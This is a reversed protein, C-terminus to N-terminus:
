GPPSSRLDLLLEPRKSRGFVVDTVLPAPMMPGMTPQGALPSSGFTPLSSDTNTGSPTVPVQPVQGIPAPQRMPVTPVSHLAQGMVVSSRLPTKTTAPVPISQPIPHSATSFGLGGVPRDIPPLTALVPALSPVVSRLTVGVVPSLVQRALQLNGSALPEATDVIPSAANAVSPVVPTLDGVPSQTTGPTAAVESVVSQASIPTQDPVGGTVGPLVAAGAPHSLLASLIVACFFGGIVGLLLGVVRWPNKLFTMATGPSASVENQLKEVELV